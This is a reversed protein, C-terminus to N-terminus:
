WSPSVSRAAHLPSARARNASGSAHCPSGDRIPPGSPRELPRRAREQERRAQELRRGTRPRASSGKAGERSRPEETPGSSGPPHRDNLIGRTVAEGGRRRPVWSANVARGPSRQARAGSTVDELGLETLAAHAGDPPGVVRRRRPPGDRELDEGSRRPGLAELAELALDLREHGRSAVRADHLDEPRAELRPRGEVDHLEHRALRELRGERASRELRPARRFDEASDGIRDRESVSVAHEVAVQLRRVDEQLRVSPRADAVEAHRPQRRGVAQRPRAHEHARRDPGRGLLERSVRRREVCPGVNVAQAREEPRGEGALAGVLSLDGLRPPAEDDRLSGRRARDHGRHRVLEVGDAGAGEVRLGSAAVRGRGGEAVVEVKPEPALRGLGDGGPWRVRSRGPSRRREEEEASDGEGEASEREARV